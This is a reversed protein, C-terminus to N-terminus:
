YLIPGEIIEGRLQREMDDRYFLTFGCSTSTSRAPKGSLSVLSVGFADPVLICAFYLLLSLIRLPNLFFFAIRSEAAM